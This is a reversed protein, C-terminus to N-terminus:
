QRVFALLAAIAGRIVQTHLIRSRFWIALPKETANERRRMGIALLNMMPPLFDRDEQWHRAYRQSLNKDCTWFKSVATTVVRGGLIM